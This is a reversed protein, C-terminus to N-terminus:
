RPETPSHPALMRRIRDDDFHTLMLMGLPVRQADAVARLADMDIEAVNIGFRRFVAMTDDDLM